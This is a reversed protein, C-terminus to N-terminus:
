CPIKLLSLFKLSLHPRQTNYRLIWKSLQKNFEKIDDFLLDRKNYYFEQQTTLNFREIKANM